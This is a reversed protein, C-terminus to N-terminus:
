MGQFQIKKKLKESLTGILLIVFLAGAYPQCATVTKRFPIPLLMNVTIMTGTRNERAM